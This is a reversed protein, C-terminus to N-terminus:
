HCLKRWEEKEERVARRTDTNKKEIEKTYSGEHPGESTM